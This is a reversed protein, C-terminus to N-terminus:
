PSPPQTLQFYGQGPSPMLPTTILGMMESGMQVEKAPTLDTWTPPSLSPTSQLNFGSAPLTWGVWYVGDPPVVMVGPTDFAVGTWTTLDLETGTFADEIFPFSPDQSQFSVFELIAQQGISSLNNPGYPLDVDPILFLHAQFNTHPMPPFDQVGIYYSVQDFPHAVWSLNTAVTRICQRQYQSGPASAMLNLSPTAKSLSLTPPPPPEGETAVLKINDVWMIWDNKKFVQDISKM